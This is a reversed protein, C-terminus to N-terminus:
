IIKGLIGGVSFAIWIWAWILRNPYYGWGEWLRQWWTRPEVPHLLPKPPTHWTIDKVFKVEQLESVSVKDLAKKMAEKSPSDSRQYRFHRVRARAEEWDIEGM